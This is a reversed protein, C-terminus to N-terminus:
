NNVFNVLEVKYLKKECFPNRKLFEFTFLINQYDEM